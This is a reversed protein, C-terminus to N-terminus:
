QYFFIISNIDGDKYDSKVVLVKREERQNEEDNMSSCM